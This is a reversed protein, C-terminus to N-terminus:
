PKMAGAIVTALKQRARHVESDTLLGRILLWTIADASRQWSKVTEDRRGLQTSLSDALAGFKLTM